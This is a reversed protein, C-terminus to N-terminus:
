GEDTVPFSKKRTPLTDIKAIEQIIIPTNHKKKKTTYAELDARHLPTDLSTDEPLLESCGISLKIYIVHEEWRVPSTKIEQHLREAVLRAGAQDTEPLIVAFEDGGMRGFIDQTRLCGLCLKITHKLAWDGAAHSLQDNIQKFHDIDFMLVSLPHSYRRARAIEKEGLEFFKRRNLAGTLSDTSAVEELQQKLSTVEITTRQGNLLTFTAAWAVDFVLLAGYGLINLPNNAFLSRFQIGSIWFGLRILLVLSCALACGGFLWYLHRPESKPGAFVIWAIWFTMASIPLTFIVNRILISDAIFTFYVLLLFVPTVLFWGLSKNTKKGLFANIAYYRLVITAVGLSNAIPIAIPVEWFSRLLFMAYMSIETLSSWIWFMYGPFTRQTRKYIIMGIFICVNLLLDSLLITKADFMTM